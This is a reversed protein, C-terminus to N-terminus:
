RLFTGEGAFFIRYSVGIHNWLRTALGEVWVLGLGLGSKEGRSRSLTQTPPRPVLNIIGCRGERSRPVATADSTM